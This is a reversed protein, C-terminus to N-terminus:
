SLAGKAFRDVARYFELDSIQSAAAETIRAFTVPDRPILNEPHSALWKRLVAVDSRDTIPHFRDRERRGENFQAIDDGEGNVKSKAKVKVKANVKLHDQLLRLIEAQNLTFWEGHKQDPYMEHLRSEEAGMDDVFARDLLRIEVGPLDQRIKYIRKAPDTSAGIKVAGDSSRQMVYVFGPKNYNKVLAPNGGNKGCESRELRNAEDRVMRRCYIAGDEDRSFAGADELEKVWASVEDVKAGVMRALQPESIIKGNVKLHGYPAGEHMYCIMDMWM